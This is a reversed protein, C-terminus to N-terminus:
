VPYLVALVVVIMLGFTIGAVVDSLWHAGLYIRSAGIALPLVAFLLFLTARLGGPPTHLWVLFALFGYFAAAGMSHGSPFSFGWRPGPHIRAESEGPRERDFLNKMIANIPLAVLTLAAFVAPGAAGVAFGIALLGAALLIVTLSNGLFTLARAIRTLTPHDLKQLSETVCLDFAYTARMRVLVSVVALAGALIILFTLTQPYLLRALRESAFFESM